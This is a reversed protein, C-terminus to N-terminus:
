KLFDLLSLQRIAATTQLAAQYATNATTVKIAMDALDVDEITSLQSKMSTASAQQTSQADQVHRYTAGAVAQASSITSIAGDLGSLASGTLSNSRLAASISSLTDFVSSGASGFVAPGTTSVAVTTDPGIMRSVEGSDGVYTGNASYATGDATTGGFVPRGNNTTNAVALLASRLQDVQTAFAARSTGDAAGSNLGQVVLTRAQQMVTVAQSYASDATSLWTLADGANTAYQDTRALASRLSMAQATGSPNDSPRLIQKGSSEHAQMEPLASSTSRIAQLGSYAISGVTVRTITM